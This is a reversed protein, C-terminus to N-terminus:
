SGPIEERRSYEPAAAAAAAAFQVPVMDRCILTDTSLATGLDDEDDDINLGYDMGDITAM